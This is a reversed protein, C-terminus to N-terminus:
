TVEGRSRADEEKFEEHRDKAKEDWYTPVPPPALTPEVLMMNEHLREMRRVLSDILAQPLMHRNEFMWQLVENQMRIQGIVRNDFEIRKDLQNILPDM